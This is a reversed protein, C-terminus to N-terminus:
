VDVTKCLLVMQMHDTSTRCWPHLNAITYYFNHLKFKGKASGLPNALNIEDQYLILQIAAPDKAFIPHNQFLSGDYIDEIVNLSPSYNQRYRYQEFVSDFKFLNELSSKIPIYHYQCPKNSENLGLNYGIPKIYPFLRMYEKKRKFDSGMKGNSCHLEILPHQQM